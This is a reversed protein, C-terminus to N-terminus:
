EFDTVKMGLRFNDFGFMTPKYDGVIDAKAKEPIQNEMELCWYAANIILRRLDESELDVSAGMTSTFVKGKNGKESTYSQTWAIPMLSKGWNIPTDPEMGKTPIGHILVKADEGLNKVTYVDSAVWIDKVGKLVPHGAEAQIGDLLARTGEVAHHGHHAVWTEGLIKRGFGQEWESVTSQWHYKAYPSKNEKGYNFAHTSTRLGIIPKGAQIYEDIYKMQDDPLERFRILMIVLDADRLHELGPINNKYNPVVENKEPDISFLVTTHFGHHASLIKAMMPMGEESRYEDDGSILVIKKGKGPGSNGEFQLWLKEQQGCALSVFLFSCLLLSVQKLDFKFKFLPPSTMM